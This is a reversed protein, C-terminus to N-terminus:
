KLIKIVMKEFVSGPLSTPINLLRRGYSSNLFINFAIINFQACCFYLIMGSEFTVMIPLSFIPVLYFFRRLSIGTNSSYSM